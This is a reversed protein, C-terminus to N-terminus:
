TTGRTAAGSGAADTKRNHDHALAVRLVLGALDALADAEHPTGAERHCRAVAAAVADTQEVAAVLARGQERWGRAGSAIAAAVAEAQGRADRSPACGRPIRPSGREMESHPDHAGTRRTKAPLALPDAIRAVAPRPGTTSLAAEALVDPALHAYRETMTVSSHGLLDRIEEPRWVRGWWGAVLSSACSHRLDHIRVRRAIGAAALMRPWRRIAKRGERVKGFFANRTRRAGTATPCAFASRRMAPVTARHALWARAGALALGFLPVVRARRTKTRRVIVRPSAGDTVLDCLALGCLESVRLGTGLLIAALARDHAPIADCALIATQEDPRLYTWSAGEDSPARPARFGAPNGALIADEVALDLVRRLYGLLLACTSRALGSAALDRLWGRVDPRAVARVDMPALRGSGIHKRVLPAINERVNARGDLALATIWREGYAAVTASDDATADGASLRELAARLVDLAEAETAYTGLPRRRGAVSVRVRWRGSRLREIGGEGPRRM